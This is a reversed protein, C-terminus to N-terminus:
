PVTRLLRRDDTGKRMADILSYVRVLKQATREATGHDRLQQVIARMRRYAHMAGAYDDREICGDLGHKERQLQLLLQRDLEAPDPSPRASGAKRIREFLQTFRLALDMPLHDMQLADHRAARYLRAAERFDGSALRQEVQDLLSSAHAALAAPGPAQQPAPRRPAPPQAKPPAAVNLFDAAGDLHTKLKGYLATLLTKIQQKEATGGPLSDFKEKLDHLVRKARALDDDALAALMEKEYDRTLFASLSAAPPAADKKPAQAFQDLFIEIDQEIFEEIDM